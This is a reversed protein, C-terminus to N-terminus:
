DSKYNGMINWLWCTSVHNCCNTCTNSVSSCEETSKGSIAQFAEMVITDPNPDICGYYDKYCNDYCRCEAKDGEDCSLDSYFGKSRWNTGMTLSMNKRWNTEDVKVAGKSNSLLLVLTTLVIAITLTILLPRAYM